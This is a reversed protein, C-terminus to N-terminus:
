SIDPCLSFCHNQPVDAASQESDKLKKNLEATSM